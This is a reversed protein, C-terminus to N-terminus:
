LTSYITNIDVMFLELIKIHLNWVLNVTGKLQSQRGKVDRFDQLNSLASFAVM